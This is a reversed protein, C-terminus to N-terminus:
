KCWTKDFGFCIPAEQKEERAQRSLLSSLLGQHFLDQRLLYFPLHFLPLKLPFGPTWSRRHSSLATARHRADQCTSRVQLHLKPSENETPKLLFTSENPSATKFSFYTWEWYTYLMICSFVERKMDTLVERRCLTHTVRQCIEVLSISKEAVTSEIM